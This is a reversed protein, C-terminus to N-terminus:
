TWFTFTQNIRNTHALDPHRWVLSVNGPFTHLFLNFKLFNWSIYILSCYLGLSWFLKSVSLFKVMKWLWANNCKKNKDNRWFHCFTVVFLSILWQVSGLPFITCDFQFLIMQVLVFMCRFDHVAKSYVLLHKQCRKMDKLSPKMLKLKEMKLGIQWKFFGKM